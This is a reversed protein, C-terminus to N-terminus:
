NIHSDLQNMLNIHRGFFLMSLASLLHWMVHGHLFINEPECYIRQIDIIAFTQAVILTAFGWWFYKYKKLRGDRKGAWIDLVVFSIVSLAIIEQVPLNTIDFLTFIVAHVAFYGAFWAAFGVKAGWNFRKSNWALAFSTVAFMGLFDVYQSLYNNTAHYIFSFFGMFFVCMGFVYLQSSKAKKWLWIGVLLLPLNSWTNAPENIYSCVTPECWNVNPPGYSQQAEYWPCGLEITFERQTDYPGAM